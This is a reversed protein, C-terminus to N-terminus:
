HEKLYRYFTQNRFLWAEGTWYAKLTNGNNYSTNTQVVYYGSEEKKPNQYIWEM